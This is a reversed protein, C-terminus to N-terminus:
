TTAAKGVSPAEDVDTLQLSSILWTGKEPMFILTMRVISPTTKADMLIHEWLITGMWIAPNGSRAAELHHRAKKTAFPSLLNQLNSSIEKRGSWLKGKTDVFFSQEAFLESLEQWNGARLCELFQQPGQFEKTQPSFAKWGSVVAGSASIQRPMKRVREQVKILDPKHESLIRYAM